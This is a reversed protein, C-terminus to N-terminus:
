KRVSLLCRRRKGKDEAALPAAGYSHGDCGEAFATHLIIQYAKEVEGTTIYVDSYTKNEICLRDCRLVPRECAGAVTGVRIRGVARAGRGFLALAAVASCVCVPRGRFSLRNGSDALGKWTVTRAGATLTCDYLLRTLRVRRYLRRVGVACAAFFVATFAAILGVPAQAIMFGGAVRRAGCMVCVATLLGGLMFTFAFLLLSTWVLTKIEKESVAITALLVGGALKVAIEAWVPLAILPYLVALAGGSGAAATLRLPRVAAHAGKLALYLLLGDFLSNELFAYEWYVVM